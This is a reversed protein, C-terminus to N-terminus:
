GTSRASAAMVDAAPGPFSPPVRWTATEIGLEELLTRRETYPLQLLSRGDLRLLDFVYYFLPLRGSLRRMAAQDRVHMREQLRGFSPRGREDLAVLEGDLVTSRRRVAEPPELVEPYSVSVDLDNHSVLRTAGGQLYAIGRV